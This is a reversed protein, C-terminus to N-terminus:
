RRNQRARSITMALATIAAGAAAAMLVSKVPEQRIYAVTTDSARGVRERVDGSVDRAQEMAKRTFEEAQAVARSILGPMDQQVDKMREQVESLAKDTAERTGEVVKEVQEAGQQAAAQLSEEAHRVSPHQRTSM